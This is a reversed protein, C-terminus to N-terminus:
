GAVLWRGGRAVKAAAEPPESWNPPDGAGTVIGSDTPMWPSNWRTVPSSGQAGLSPHDPPPQPKIVAYCHKMPM